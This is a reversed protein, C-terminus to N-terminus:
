RGMRCPSGLFLILYLIRIQYIWAYDLCKWMNCNCVLKIPHSPLSCRDALLQAQISQFLQIRKPITTSLYAEDKPHKLAMPATQTNHLQNHLLRLFTSSLFHNSSSFTKRRSHFPILLNAKWIKAYLMHLKNVAAITNKCM